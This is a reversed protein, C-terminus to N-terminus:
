PCDPVARLKGLFASTHAAVKQRYGGPSSMSGPECSTCRGALTPSACVFVRWSRSVGSAPCAEGRSSTECVCVNKIQMEEVTKEGHCSISCHVPSGRVQLPTPKCQLGEWCNTELDQCPRFTIGKSELGRSMLQPKTAEPHKRRCPTGIPFPLHGMPASPQQSFCKGLKAVHTNPSVASRAHCLLEAPQHLLVPLLSIPFTAWWYGSYCCVPLSAMEEGDPMRSDVAHLFSSCAAGRHPCWPGESTMSM